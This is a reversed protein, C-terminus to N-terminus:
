NESLEAANKSCLILEIKWTALAGAGTTFVYRLYRSEFQRFAFSKAVDGAAMAVATIGSDLWNIGDNSYQLEIDGVVVPGGASVDNVQLNGSTRNNIDIPGFTYATAPTSVTKVGLNFLNSERYIRAM